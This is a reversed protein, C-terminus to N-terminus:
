LSGLGLLVLGPADSPTSPPIQPLFVVWLRSPCALWGEPRAAAWVWQFWTRAARLFGAQSAQDRPGPKAGAGVLSAVARGRSAEAEGSPSSLLPGLWRGM